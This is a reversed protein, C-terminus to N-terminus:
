HISHILPEPQCDLHIQRTQSSEARILRKLQWSHYHYILWTRKSNDGGHCATARSRGSGGGGNGLKSTPGFDRNGGVVAAMTIAMMFQGIKQWIKEVEVWRSKSSWFLNKKLHQKSKTCQLARLLRWGFLHVAWLQVRWCRSPHFRLTLVFDKHNGRNNRRAAVVLFISIWGLQFDIYNLFSDRIGVKVRHKFIVSFTNNLM